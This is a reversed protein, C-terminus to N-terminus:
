FLKEVSEYLKIYKYFNDNYIRANGLDPEYIKKIKVLNKCAAKVDSFIGSGSAGLIAAGLLATETYYPVELNFGCVDAKIQCWTSSKAGGGISILRKIDIGLKKIYDLDQRMMYAIAELIARIFYSKKSNISIGFYVGKANYNYEPFLAGCLHPIMIMGECGPPAEEAMEDMIAYINKNKMKSIEKEEQQCFTDKFWKLVM